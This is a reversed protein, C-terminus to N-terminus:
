LDRCKWEFNENDFTFEKNKQTIERLKAERVAVEQELEALVTKM